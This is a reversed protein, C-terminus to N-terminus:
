NRKLKQMELIIKNITTKMMMKVLVKILKKNEDEDVFDIFAEEITNLREKKKEEKKDKLYMLREVVYNEREKFDNVFDERKKYKEDIQKIYDEYKKDGDEIINKKDDRYAMFEESWLDSINKMKFDLLKRVIQKYLGTGINYKNMILDDKVKNKDFGYENIINLIREDVPFITEHINIGESFIKETYPKLWPHKIIKQFTYRKKPNKDLMHRLLDKLKNSLEKPFDIKGNSLLIKNKNDDEDSFPLYGCILVYLIVGLSWVDALEPNYPQEDIIEPCVYCLSGYSGEISKGKEYFSSYGFGVIKPRNNKDFLIHEVRLNLHCINM